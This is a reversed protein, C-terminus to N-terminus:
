KRGLLETLYRDLNDLGINWEWTWHLTLMMDRKQTETSIWAVSGRQLLEDSRGYELPESSYIVELGRRRGFDMEVPHSGPGCLVRKFGAEVLALCTRPDFVNHPPIYTDLPGCRADLPIRAAVLAQRIDAATMHDRFENPFREDHNIGHMAVRISPNEGLWRLQEDTTRNPIVGLYYSQGHKQMVEHFRKFNELNHRWAEDDKTSPFDDVRISLVSM